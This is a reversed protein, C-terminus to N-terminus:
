AIIKCLPVDQLCLRDRVWHSVWSYRASVKIGTIVLSTLLRCPASPLFTYNTASMMMRKNKDGKKANQSWKTWRRQQIEFRKILDTWKAARLKWFRLNLVFILWLSREFPIEDIIMVRRNEKETNENISIVHEKWKPLLSQIINLASYYCFYTTNWQIMLGFSAGSSDSPTDRPEDRSARNLVQISILTFIKIAINCSMSELTVDTLVLLVVFVLANFSDFSTIDSLVSAQSFDPPSTLAM